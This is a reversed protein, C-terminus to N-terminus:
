RAHRTMFMLSRRRVSLTTVIRTEHGYRYSRVQRLSLLTVLLSRLTVSNDRSIVMTTFHRRRTDSSAREYRGAATTTYRIVISALHWCGRSIYRCCWEESAMWYGSAISAGGATMAKAGFLILTIVLTVVPTIIIFTARINHWYGIRENAMDHHRVVFCCRSMPLRYGYTTAMPLCRRWRRYYRRM